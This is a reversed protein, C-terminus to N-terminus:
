AVSAELAARIRHFEAEIQAAPKKYTFVVIGVVTDTAWGCVPFDAGGGDALGCEIEAAAGVAEVKVTSGMTLGPNRRDPVPRLSEFATVAPEAVSPACGAGLAVIASLAAARVGTRLIARTM